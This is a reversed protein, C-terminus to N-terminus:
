SSLVKMIRDYHSGIALNFIPIDNNMAIRMATATGGKLKGDATWCVVFKSPDNLNEGLVQYVNRCHLKLAGQSLRNFAPHVSRIIDVVKENYTSVIGHKDNYGRWPLYIKKDHGAGREFASDAGMAGGSRLCYGEKQLYIAIKAMMDLIDNPTERSGIGAYYKM